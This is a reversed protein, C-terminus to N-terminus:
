ESEVSSRLYCIHKHIEVIHSDHIHYTTLWAYLREFYELNSGSPGKSHYITHAIKQLPSPGLYNRNDHTAFYVLSRVPSKFLGRSKLGELLSSFKLFENIKLNKLDISTSSTKNRPLPLRFVDCIRHSYGGKERFNLQNLVSYANSIPVFYLRGCCFGDQHPVLTVVRGPNGPVGRHDTSGQYFKRSYDPLIGIFDQSFSFDPKWTLSGYGFVWLGSNNIIFEQITKSHVVGPESYEPLENSSSLHAKKCQTHSIGSSSRPSCKSLPSLNQDLDFPNINPLDM